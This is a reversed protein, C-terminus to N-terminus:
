WKIIVPGMQKWSISNVVGSLSPDSKIHLVPSIYVGNLSIITLALESFKNSPVLSSLLSLFFHSMKITDGLLCCHLYLISRFNNLIANKAQAQSPKGLGFAMTTM